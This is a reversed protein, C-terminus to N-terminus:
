VSRNFLKPNNVSNSKNNTNKIQKGYDIELSSNGDIYANLTVDILRKSDSILRSNIENLRKVEKLLNTFEDFIKNFKDKYEKPLSQIIQKFSSEEELELNHIVFRCVNIRKQEINVSKKIQNTLKENIPELDTFIGSMLLQYKESETQAIEKYCDMEEDIITYLQKIYNHNVTKTNEKEM